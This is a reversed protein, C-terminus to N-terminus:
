KAIAKIIRGKFQKTDNHATCFPPEKRPPIVADAQNSFDSHMSSATEIAIAVYCYHSDNEVHTDKYTTGTVPEKTVRQCHGCPSTTGPASRQVRGGKTRYLCYRIQKGKPNNSSTSPNWSLSVTHGGSPSSSVDNDPPDGPPCTLKVDTVTNPESASVKQLEPAAHPEPRSCGVLNMPTWLIILLAIQLAGRRDRSDKRLEERDM